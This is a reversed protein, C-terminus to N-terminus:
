VGDASREHAEQGAEVLALTADWDALGTELIGETVCALAAALVRVHAPQGLEGALESCDVALGVLEAEPISELAVALVAAAEPTPEGRTPVGFMDVLEAPTLRPRQETPYGAVNV